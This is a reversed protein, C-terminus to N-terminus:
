ACEKFPRFILMIVAGLAIGKMFINRRQGVSADKIGRQKKTLSDNFPTGLSRTFVLYFLSAVVYVAMSYALYISITCTKM